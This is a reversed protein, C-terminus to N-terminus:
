HNCAVVNEPNQIGSSPGSSMRISPQHCGVLCSGVFHFEPHEFYLTNESTRIDAPGERYVSACTTSVILWILHSNRFYNKLIFKLGSKTCAVAARWNTKTASLFSSVFHCTLWMIKRMKRCESFLICYKVRNCRIILAIECYKAIKNWFFVNKQARPQLNVLKISISESFNWNSHHFFKFSANISVEQKMFKM